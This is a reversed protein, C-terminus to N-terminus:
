LAKIAADADAAKQKAARYASGSPNVLSRLSTINGASPDGAAKEAASVIDREADLVGVRAEASTQVLLAVRQEEDSLRPLASDILASAQTLMARADSLEPDLARVAGATQTSPASAVTKVAADLNLLTPDVANVLVVARDLSKAAELRPAVFRWGLACILIGVLIAAVVVNRWIRREQLDLAAQAQEARSDQDLDGM